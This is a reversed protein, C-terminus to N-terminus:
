DVKAKVCRSLACTWDGYVLQNYALYGGAVILALAIIVSHERLWKM